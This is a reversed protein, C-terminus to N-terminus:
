PMMFRSRTISKGSNKSVKKYRIDKLENTKEWVHNPYVDLPLGRLQTVQTVHSVDFKEEHFGSEDHDGSFATLHAHDPTRPEMWTDSM